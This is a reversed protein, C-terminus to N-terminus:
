EVYTIADFLDSLTKYETVEDEDFEDDEIDYKKHVFWFFDETTIDLEGLTSDEDVTELTFFRGFDHLFQGFEIDIGRPM